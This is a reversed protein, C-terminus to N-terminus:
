SLHPCSVMPIDSTPYPFTNRFSHHKLQSRCSSFFKALPQQIGWAPSAPPHSEPPLLPSSILLHIWSISLFHLGWSKTITPIHTVLPLPSCLIFNLSRPLAYPSTRGKVLVLSVLPPPSNPESSMSNSPGTIGLHLQGAFKHICFLSCPHHSLKLHEDLIGFCVSNSDRNSYHPTSRISPHSQSPFHNSTM